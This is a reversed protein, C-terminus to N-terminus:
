VLVGSDSPPRSTGPEGILLIPDTRELYGGDAQSRISSVLIWCSSKRESPPQSGSM